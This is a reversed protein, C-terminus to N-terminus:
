GALFVPPPPFCYCRVIVRTMAVIALV